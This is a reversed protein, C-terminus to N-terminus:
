RVDATSLLLLHCEDHLRTARIFLRGPAGCRKSSPETSAGAPRRREGKSEERGAGSRESVGRGRSVGQGAPPPSSQEAAPPFPMLTGGAANSSHAHHRRQTAPPCAGPSMCPTPFKLVIHFTSSHFHCWRAQRRERKGGSLQGYTPSGDVHRM